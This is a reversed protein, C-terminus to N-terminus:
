RAAEESSSKRHNQKSNQLLHGDGRNIFFDKGNTVAAISSSPRPKPEEKHNETIAQSAQQKKSIMQKLKKYYMYLQRMPEKDARQPQKGWKVSFSQDYVKLEGKVSKKEHLLEDLSM